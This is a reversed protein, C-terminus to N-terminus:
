AKVQRSYLVKPNLCLSLGTAVAKIFDRTEDLPDTKVSVHIGPKPEDDFKDKSEITTGLAREGMNKTLFSFKNDAHYRVTTDEGDIGETLDYRKDDIIFKFEHGVEMSIIQNIINLGVSSGSNFLNYGKARNIVKSQRGLDISLRRSLTIADPFYGNLDYYDMMSNEITAIGDANDYDTWVVTGIPQGSGTATLASPFNNYTAAPDKWDLTTQIGTKLDTHNIGGTQIIQWSFLRLLNHIGMVLDKPRSYIFDNVFRDDVGSVMQGNPLVMNSVSKNQYKAKQILEHMRFQTEEDFEAQLGLKVLQSILQKFQNARTNPVKGNYGVVSAIPQVKKVILGLFNRDMYQKIPFYPTLIDDKDKIIQGHTEEVILDVEKNQYSQNLWSAVTGM